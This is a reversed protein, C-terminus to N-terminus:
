KGMNFLITTKIREYYLFNWQLAQLVYDETGCWLSIQFILKSCFIGNAIMLRIKFSPIWSIMKLDSLRSTLQKLLSKDNNRIYETWKMDDQIQIWLLKEIKVPQIEENQTTIKVDINM